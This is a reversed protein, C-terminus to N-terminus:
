FKHENLFEILNEDTIPIKKVVSKSMDIFDSEFLEFCYLKDLVIVMRYGQHLAALWKSNNQIRIILGPGNDSNNHHDYFWQSKIEFIINNHIFDFHYTREKKIDIYKVCQGNRILQLLNLMELKQLFDREYNGQYYLVDNYHKIAINHKQALFTRQLGSMGDAGIQSKTINAKQASRQAITLGDNGIISKTIVMKQATKQKLSLGDDGIKSFTIVAKKAGRQASSTGSEDVENRKKVAKNTSRQFINLGDYGIQLKTQTTQKAAKLGRLQHLNKGNILTNTTTEASHLSRKQVFTLDDDQKVYQFKLFCDHSCTHGYGFVFGKYKTKNIGCIKCFQTEKIDSYLCYLREAFKCELPLFSTQEYIIKSVSKFQPFEKDICRSSCVCYNLKGFPLLMNEDIFVKWSFPFDEKTEIECNM